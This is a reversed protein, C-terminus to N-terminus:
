TPAPAAPCVRAPRPARGGRARVGDAAVLAAPAAAVRAQCRSHRLRMYLVCAGVASPEVCSHQTAAASPAAAAGAGGAAGAAPAHSSAPLLAAAPACLTACRLMCRTVCAAVCRLECPHQVAYCLTTRQPPACRPCPAHHPAAGRGAPPACRPCPAHRLAARLPPACCPRVPNDSLPASCCQAYCCCRLLSHGLTSCRAVFAAAAATAPRCRRRCCAAPLPCSTAPLARCDWGGQQLRCCQLVCSRRWASVAAAVCAAHSSFCPRSSSRRRSRSASAFSTFLQTTSQHQGEFDPPATM